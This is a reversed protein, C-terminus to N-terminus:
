SFEAHINNIAGILIRTPDYVAAKGAVNKGIGSRRTALGM